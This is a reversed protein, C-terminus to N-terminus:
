LRHNLSASTYVKQPTEGKPLKSFYIEKDEPISAILRDLVDIDEAVVVVNSSSTDLPTTVNVRHADSDAQKTRMQNITLHPILKSIFRAKNNENAFINEQAVKLLMDEFAYIVSSEEFSSTKKGSSQYNEKRNSM